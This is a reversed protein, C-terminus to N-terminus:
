RAAGPVRETSPNLDVALLHFRPDTRLQDLEPDLQTEQPSYGQWLAQGLLDLARDRHGCIELTVALRYHSSADLTPAASTGDDAKLRAILDMAEATGGSKALFLALRSQLTPNQPQGELEVRLLQIARRYHKEADQKKAPIWRYADALNAWYLYHNAATGLALAKEFADAAEVYLGQIFLLTGLNAYLSPVPSIQLAIQLEQSAEAYQGQMYLAAVLNRRGYVARPAIAISDRYAAEAEQYRGSKLYLDGIADHPRRDGPESEIARRYAQEAEDIENRADLIQAKRYWAERHNPQLILATKLDSEAAAPEDQHFLVIGRIVRADAFHGDLEVAKEAAARARVLFSPDRNDDQFRWLHTEALGTYAPASRENLALMKRFVQEAREAHSVQSSDRLLDRGYQYLQQPGMDETPDVSGQATSGQPAANEQMGPPSPPDKRYTEGLDDGRLGLWLAALGLCAIGLAVLRPRPIVFYSTSLNSGSPEQVSPDASSPLNSAQTSNSPGALTVSHDETLDGAPFGPESAARDRFGVLTDVVAQTSSPRLEPSKQHLREVWASLDEPISPDVDHLPEPHFTLVRSLTEILSNGRFPSRGALMQYILTGLSFLDSRFDVDLGRAQEPSMATGTGVVVGPVSISADTPDPGDTSHPEVRKALGFDLIKVRGSRTMAVNAPKLDRHVIGHAHAERLGEAIDLAWGLAKQLPVPGESLEDALTFGDLLEMVIWSDGNDDELIDHIQVIAPHNLRAVSRAERLFRARSRDSDLLDARIQKLAVRRHLREDFAQFVEGM